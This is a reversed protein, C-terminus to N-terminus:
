FKYIVSIEPSMTIFKGYFDVDGGYMLPGLKAIDFSFEWRENSKFRLDPTINPLLSFEGDEFVFVNGAKCDLYLTGNNWYCYRVYPEINLFGCEDAFGLTLDAGVAWQDNIEYGGGGKLGVSSLEGACNIEAAGSAFWSQARLLSMAGFVIMAFLLTIRKM